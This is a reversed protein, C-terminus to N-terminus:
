DQRWLPYAKWVACTKALFSLFHLIFHAPRWWSNYLSQNCAPHYTLSILEVRNWFQQTSFIKGWHDRGYLLGLIKLDRAGNWVFRESKYSERGGWTHFTHIALFTLMVNQWFYLSYHPWMKSFSSKILYVRWDENLCHPYMSLQFTWFEKLM